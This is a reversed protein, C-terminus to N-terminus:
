HGYRLEVSSEINLFAPHRAIIRASHHQETSLGERQPFDGGDGVGGRLHLDSRGRDRLHIGRACDDLVDGFMVDRDVADIGAEPFEAFHADGTVFDCAELEVQHAAVGAPEAWREGFGFRSDDHGQAGIRQCKSVAAHARDKGLSQCEHQIAAHVRHDRGFARDAGGAIKGRQGVEREADDAFALRDVVALPHGAADRQLAGADFRDAELGLFAEGEEISSLREGSHTREREPAGCPEGAEGVDCSGHRELGQETSGDGEILAYVGRPRMRSLTRGGCAQAHQEFAAVNSGCAAGSGRAHLIGVAQAAHRLHVAGHAASEAEGGVRDFDFGAGGGIVREDEGFRAVHEGAAVEVSRRESEGEVGGRDGEGSEGRDGFAADIAEDIGIEVLSEGREEGGIGADGAAEHDGMDGGHRQEVFALHQRMRGADIVHGGGASLLIVNGHSHGGREFEAGDHLVDFGDGGDFQQRGGLRQAIAFSEIGAGRQAADAVDKPGDGRREAFVTREGEIDLVESAGDALAPEVFPCDRLRQRRRHSRAPTNCHAESGCDAGGAAAFRRQM